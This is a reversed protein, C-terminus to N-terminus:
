RPRCSSTYHGGDIADDHVAGAHGTGRGGLSRAGVSPSTGTAMRAHEGVELHRRRVPDHSSSAPWRRPGARSSESAMGAFSDPHRNVAVPPGPRGARWCPSCSPRAASRCRRGRRRQTWTLPLTQQRPEPRLQAHTADPERDVLACVPGFRPFRNTSSSAPASCTSRARTAVRGPLPASSRRSPLLCWRLSTLRCRRRLKSSSPQVERARRRGRM